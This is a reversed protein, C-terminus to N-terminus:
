SWTNPIWSSDFLHILMDTYIYKELFTLFTKMLNECNWTLILNLILSQSHQKQIEQGKKRTIIPLFLSSSELPLVELCSNPYWTLLMVAQLSLM